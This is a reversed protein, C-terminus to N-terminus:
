YSFITKFNLSVMLESLREDFSSLRPAKDGTFPKLQTSQFLAFHYYFRQTIVKICELSFIVAPFSFPRKNQKM